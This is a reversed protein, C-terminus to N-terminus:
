ALALRQSRWRAYMSWPDDAGAQLVAIHDLLADHVAFWESRALRHSAFQAHRRQELLRDGPEFALLSDYRLSAFRQRPNASTGIKIQDRFRLYYVVDVRVVAAAEPDVIDGVRWECVACLWGTPYRVGLRSGCALCPSPLLDTVGVEGAVWDHAALLHHRCLDLPAGDAVSEACPRGSDVALCRTMPGVSRRVPSM